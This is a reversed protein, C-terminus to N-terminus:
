IMLWKWSRLWKGPQTKEAEIHVWCGTITFQSKFTQFTKFVSLRRTITGQNVHSVLPHVDLWELDNWTSFNARLCGTFPWLNRLNNPQYLVASGPVPEHESIYEYAKDLLIQASLVASIEITFRFNKWGFIKDSLIFLFISITLHCVASRM